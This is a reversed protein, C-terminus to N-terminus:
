FSWLTLLRWTSFVTVETGFMFRRLQEIGNGNQFFNRDWQHQQNEEMPFNIACDSLEIIKFIIEFLKAKNKGIKREKAIYKSIISNFCEMVQFDPIEETSM